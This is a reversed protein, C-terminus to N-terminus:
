PTAEQEHSNPSMARDVATSFRTSDAAGEWFAVKSGHADYVLTAPLAGSWKPELSDIFAMQEGFEIYTTDRVGHARLFERVAPLQDPFDASILVLRVGRIQRAAVTRLLAPFEARCPECWTAWVNLLTVHVGPKRVLACVGAATVPIVPPQDALTAGASSSAGAPAGGGQRPRPACSSELAAALLLLAIAPFKM